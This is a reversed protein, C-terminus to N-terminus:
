LECFDGGTFDHCLTATQGGQITVTRLIRDGGDTLVEVQHPGPALSYRRGTNGLLRDDVVVRGFPMTMAALTGHLGATPEEVAVAEVAVAEVAVAEVAVPVAEPEDEPLPVAEPAVELVEVELAQIPPIPATRVGQSPPVPPGPWLSLGAAVAVLLVVAAVAWPGRRGARERPVRVTTEEGVTTGHTPAEAGVPAGVPPLPRTPPYNEVEAAAGGPAVMFGDYTPMSIDDGVPGSFPSYADGELRSAQAARPVVLSPTDAPDEPLLPIVAEIAEAMRTASSYREAVAYRTGRQLLEVLPPLVQSFVEEHLETSYLDLPVRGTVLLYLTAAASYIDARLDVDRANTRQEPAMFALTGMVVGTRTLAHNTGTVQAIGFDTIKPVGELSLLVNQPKVDRHVVQAQHAAGLGDLVQIMARCALRPPLVGGVELRDALSGGDLKEMVIFPHEGELGVDHVTVINRHKLRAMTRAEQVFRVRVKENRAMQPSLIKIAREVELDRDWAVSVTAMAGAGLMGRLEYRGNALSAPLHANV